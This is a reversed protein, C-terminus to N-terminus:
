NKAVIVLAPRILRDNLLYGKQLVQLVTNPKAGPNEQMSIAQHFDPNFLEGVPDITKISFKELTKLFLNLTMEMGEHVRKAFENNGVEIQLGHEISDVIPLLELVLKEVAYKHASSIDREARKRINDLEAQARLVQNKSENFAADMENLKMELEEYSPHELAKLSEDAEDHHVQDNEMDPKACVHAKTHTDQPKKSM